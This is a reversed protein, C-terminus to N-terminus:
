IKVFLQNQTKISIPSLNHYRMLVDDYLIGPYEAIEITIAAFYQMTSIDSINRDMGHLVFFPNNLSKTRM